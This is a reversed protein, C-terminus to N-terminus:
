KSEKIYKEETAIDHLCFYVREDQCHRLTAGCPTIEIEGCCASGFRTFYIGEGYRLNVFDAKRESFAALSLLVLSIVLSVILYILIKMANSM